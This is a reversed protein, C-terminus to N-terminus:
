QCTYSTYLLSLYTSVSIYMSVSLYTGHLKLIQAIELNHQANESDLSQAPLRLIAYNGRTCLRSFTYCMHAIELNRLGCTRLRLIAHAQIGSLSHHVTYSSLRRRGGYSAYQSRSSHTISHISSCRCLLLSHKFNAQHNYNAM